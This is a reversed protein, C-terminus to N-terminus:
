AVGRTSSILGVVVVAMTTDVLWFGTNKSRGAQKCHSRMAAAAAAPSFTWSSTQTLWFTREVNERLLIHQKNNDAGHHLWCGNKM